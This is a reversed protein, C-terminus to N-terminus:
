WAIAYDSFHQLKGTVTQHLIDDLSPLYQLITLEGSVYAVRKPALIGALNCGEYSLSLKVPRGFQLGEPQLTVRRVTDSPAVATIAVSDDLAGEPVQLTHAGVQITGGDPGIVQSVSDYPMPQCSVLSGPLGGGLLGGLLDDSRTGHPGAVPTAADRCSLLAASAVAVLLSRTFRPKRM